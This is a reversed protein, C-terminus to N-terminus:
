TKPNQRKDEICQWKKKKSLKKFAIEAKTATSRNEEEWSVLIELPLRARTYKAGKGSQHEELRRMVDTTIGCYLSGDSCQLVYVYWASM